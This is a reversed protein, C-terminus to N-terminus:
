IIGSLSPDAAIQIELTRSIQKDLNIIQMKYSGYEKSVVIPVSESASTSDNQVKYADPNFYIRLTGHNSDKIVDEVIRASGFEELYTPNIYYNPYAKPAGSQSIVRTTINNKHQLFTVQIQTGYNSSFGHADISAICYIFSSNRDFDRDFHYSIPYKVKKILSPDITEADRFETYGEDTFDYEAIIEFASRLNKRRFVQYKKIDRTPNSPHAWELRLGGESHLYEPVIISPPLPIDTERAVVTTTPAPSSAVACTVISFLIFDSDEQIQIIDVLYLQRARYFYTHGYKINPDIIETSSPNLSIQPLHTEYKGLPSVSYKEVLYGIHNIKPYQNCMEIFLGRPMRESRQQLLVMEPVKNEDSDTNKVSPFITEDLLNNRSLGASSAFPGLSDVEFYASFPNGKSVPSLIKRFSEANYNTKHQIQSRTEIRSYRKNYIENSFKYGNIESDSLADLIISEDVDDSLTANLEKAIIEDSLSGFLGGEKILAESSIYLESQIRNKVASDIVASSAIYKNQIEGELNINKINASGDINRIKSLIQPELTPVSDWRTDSARPSISLKVYRPVRAALDGRSKSEISEVTEQSVLGTSYDIPSRRGSNFEKDENPVYFNYVFSANVSIPDLFNSITIPFSLKTVYESM